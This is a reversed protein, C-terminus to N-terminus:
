VFGECFSGYPSPVVALWLYDPQKFFSLTKWTQVQDETPPTTSTVYHQWLCGRLTDFAVM